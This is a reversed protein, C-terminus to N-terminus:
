RTDFLSPQPQETPSRLHTVSLNWRSSLFAAVTSRHCDHPSQCGCMLVISRAVDRLAEAGGEPDALQIPGARYNVNGFEPVHVYHMRDREMLATRTFGPKTTHPSRRVDVLLARMSRIKLVVEDITWQAYGLTYLSISPM